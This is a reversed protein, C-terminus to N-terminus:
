DLSGIDVVTWVQALVPVEFRDGGLVQDGTDRGADYLVLRIEVSLKPVNEVSKPVVVPVTLM